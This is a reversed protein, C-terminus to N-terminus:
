DAGVSSLVLFYPIIIINDIKKLQVGSDSYSYVVM